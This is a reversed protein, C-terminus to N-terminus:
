GIERGVAAAHIVSAIRIASQIAQKSIGAKELQSAHANMCMSCGNIASVALSGLEFIIKDVGPNTMVNMRLRAPMSSYSQDTMSHTFRYYINNMAMITAAAKTGNIEEPSLSTSAHHTMATIMDKNRTAYASALAISDIQKQSLDASGSENLVAGLNLKIDKAFDPLENKLQELNIM